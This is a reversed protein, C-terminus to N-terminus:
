CAKGPYPVACVQKGLDGFGVTRWLEHDFHPSGQNPAQVLLTHLPVHQEWNRVGSRTCLCVSNGTEFEPRVHLPVRQERSFSSSVLKSEWTDSSPRVSYSKSLVFVKSFDTKNFRIGLPMGERERFFHLLARLLM